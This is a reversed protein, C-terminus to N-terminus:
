AVSREPLPALMDGIIVGHDFGGELDLQLAQGVVMTPMDLRFILGLQRIAPATLLPPAGEKWPSLLREFEEFSLESEFLCGPITSLLQSDGGIVIDRVKTELATGWLLLASPRFPETLRLEVFRRDQRRDEFLRAAVTVREAPSSLRPRALLSAVASLRGGDSPADLKM